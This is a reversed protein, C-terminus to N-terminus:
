RGQVNRYLSRRRYQHVGIRRYQNTWRWQTRGHHRHNYHNRSYLHWYARIKVWKAGTWCRLTRLRYPPPLESRGAGSGVRLVITTSASGCTGTPAYRAGGARTTASSRAAVTSTSVLADTAIGSGALADTFAITPAIGGGCVGTVASVNGGPVPGSATSATVISTVVFVSTAALGSGVAQRTTTAASTCTGTRAFMVGSAKTTASSLAAAISTSASAAFVAVRGGLEGM